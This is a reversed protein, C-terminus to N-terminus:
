KVDRRARRARTRGREVRRGPRHGRPGGSRTSAPGLPLVGDAPVEALRPERAGVEIGAFRTPSAGVGIPLGTRSVCGLLRWAGEDAVADCASWFAETGGRYSPAYLRRTRRGGEVLWGAESTAVFTRGSPDLSFSQPGDLLVGRDTAAVLAELDGADGPELVLNAPQPRPPEVWSSARASGSSRELGVAASTERNSLFGAVRGDRVLEARESPVGEADFGFSGAGEALGPDATVHVRESAVRRRGLDAPELFTGGRGAPGLGIVRDLELLPALGLALHAATQSAGLIVDHAGDPCPEASLLDVADESLQRATEELARADVLEWGRGTVIGGQGLHRRTRRRDGDAASAGLELATYVLDQEIETGESSVLVGRRRRSRFSAQSAAIRARGGLVGDLASLAEVKDSLPVGLPDRQVPTRWVGREAAQPTLEVPREQLIAAARALEVARRVAVGVDHRTPEGVAAFGWAGGHLVRVGLGRETSADAVALRGGAVTVRERGVAEFRADAYTAKLRLAEEVAVYALELASSSNFV